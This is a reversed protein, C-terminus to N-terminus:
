STRYTQRRQTSRSLQGIELREEEEVVRLKVPQPPKPLLPLGFFTERRVASVFLPMRHFHRAQFVFDSHAFQRGADFDRLHHIYLAIEQAVSVSTLIGADLAVKWRELGLISTRPKPCTMQPGM